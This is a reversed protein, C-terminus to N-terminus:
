DSLMRTGGYYLRGQGDRKDRRWSGEFRLKHHKALHQTHTPAPSYTLTGEGHRFGEV